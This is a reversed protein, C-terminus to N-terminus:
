VARRMVRRLLTLGRRRLSSIFNLIIRSASSEGEFESPTEVSLPPTILSEARLVAKEVNLFRGGLKGSDSIVSAPLGSLIDKIKKHSLTSNVELMLAVTGGVKAAAGSTGGFGDRYDDDSDNGCTVDEEVDGPASVVIRDGFNSSNALRNKSPHFKTAGVLISGTEPFCEGDDDIGADRTGNGAAVCVVVGSAIAEQIAKNVARVQEYNGGDETEIELIIIKRRGGSDKTRVKDIANAWPDGPILTTDAFHGQIAWLAAEYAIGAIGKGNVAAGALGLVATGHSDCDGGSVTESGDLSNYKFEIRDRLEEHTVRYGFDIDAIVVGNGTAHEWAKKVKCRFIYWQTPLGIIVQDDMGIFPEDLPGSAPVAKPVRAAHAVQQLKNLDRSFRSAEEAANPPFYFRLFNERGYQTPDDKFEGDKREVNKLESFSREIREFKYQRVVNIIDPLFADKFHQADTPLAAAQNLIEPDIAQKFVVEIIVPGANRKKRNRRRDDPSVIVPNGLDGPKAFDDTPMELEHISDDAKGDSYEGTDQDNTM